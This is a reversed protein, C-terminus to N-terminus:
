LTGEMETESERGEDDGGNDSKIVRVQQADKSQRDRQKAIKFLENVGENTELRQYLKEYAM